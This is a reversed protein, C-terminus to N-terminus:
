QYGEVFCFCTFCLQKKASSGFYTTAFSSSLGKQITSQNAIVAFTTQPFLNRTDMGEDSDIGAHVTARMGGRWVVVGGAQMEAECPKEWIPNICPAAGLVTVVVEHHGDGFVM